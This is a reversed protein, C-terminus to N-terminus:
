DSTTKLYLLQMRKFAIIIYKLRSCFQAKTEYDILTCLPPLPACCGVGVPPHSELSFHDNARQGLLWTQSLGVNCLGSGTKPKRSDGYPVFGPLWM